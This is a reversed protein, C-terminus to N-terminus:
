FSLAIAVYILSGTLIATVATLVESVTENASSFQTIPTFQSM